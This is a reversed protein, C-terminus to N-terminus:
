IVYSCYRQFLQPSPPAESVPQRHAVTARRHRACLDIVIPGDAFRDFAAIVALGDPPICSTVAVQQDPHDPLIIVTCCGDDHTTCSPDAHPLAPQAAQCCCTAHLAGDMHCQYWRGSPLAAALAVLVACILLPLRHIM